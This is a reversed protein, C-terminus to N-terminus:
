KYFQFLTKKIPAGLKRKKSGYDIRTLLTEDEDEFEQMASHFVFPTPLTLAISSATDVTCGPFLALQQIFLSNLTINKSKSANSCFEEYTTNTVISSFPVTVLYQTLSALYQVTHEESQTIQVL